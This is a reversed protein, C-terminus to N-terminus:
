KVTLVGEQETLFRVYLYGDEDVFEAMDVMNNSLIKVNQGGVKVTAYSVRQIVAKM